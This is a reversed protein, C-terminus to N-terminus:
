QAVPPGIPNGNADAAHKKEPMGVRPRVYVFTITGNTDREEATIQGQGTQNNRPTVPVRGTGGGGKKKPM